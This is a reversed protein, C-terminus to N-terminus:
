QAAQVKVVTPYPSKYGMDSVPLTILMIEAITPMAIIANGEPMM